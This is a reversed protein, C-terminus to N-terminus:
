GHATTPTAESPVSSYEGWLKKHAEEAVEIADDLCEYQGFHHVKGDKNFRVRYKKRSACWYIGTIGHLTNDFNRNANNQGRTVLRLNEILNNSRDRDIHDVMMGKPIEGHHLEYIVRHVRHNSGKFCFRLYGDKELYGLPKM